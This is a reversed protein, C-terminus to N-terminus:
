AKEGALVSSLLIRNYNVHTEDGFITIEFRPSYKLIQEVCATGAMGNGVVVLRERKRGERITTEKEMLKCDDCTRFGARRGCKTRGSDGSGGNEEAQLDLLPGFWDAPERCRHQRADGAGSEVVVM